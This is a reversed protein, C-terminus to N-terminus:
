TKDFFHFVLYSRDVKAVHYGKEKMENKNKQWHFWFTENPKYVNVPLENTDNLGYQEAM